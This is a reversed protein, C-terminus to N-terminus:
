LSNFKKLETLGDNITITPEWKLLEKAKTIDAKSKKVEDREQVHKKESGIISAIDNISYEKGSGINIVEGKGVLNSKMAAINARVVDQVNIFDRTQSGDGTITLPQKNKAQNLFISIAGSYASKFPQNPGYVNFYRLSVTPLSCSQSYLICYLEGIQKHFAYPNMPMLPATEKIPLNGQNGYVACSSSFIVKKVKAEYSVGLVYETGTVNTENTKFPNEKSLEIEPIAALHFVCEVSGIKKFTKRLDKLHRIDCLHFIAEKPINEKKGSVLNDIVHVNFGDKILGLSLHSGIFGAGGVVVVNKKNNTNKPTKKFINLM